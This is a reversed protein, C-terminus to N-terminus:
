ASRRDTALSFAAGALFGGLHAQWALLGAMAWWLVVNLTVLALVAKVVPTRDEAELSRDRFEWTLIAGALGFLAGSAGVMPTPSTALLAYGAAGGLLSLGYAALFGGQGVRGVVVPGLSLLTVMNLALHAIGAHLFGYTAFMAVPQGPFNPTWNALLGPWFGGDGLVLMRWRPAGWLGYDAGTLVAEPLICLVAVILVAAPIGNRLRDSRFM